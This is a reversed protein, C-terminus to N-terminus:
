GQSVWMAPTRANTWYDLAALASTSPDGDLDDRHLYSRRITGDEQPQSWTFRDDHVRIHFLFGNTSRVAVIGAEHGGELCVLGRQTLFDILVDRTSKIPPM